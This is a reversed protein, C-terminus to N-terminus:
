LKKLVTSELRSSIVEDSDTLVGAIKLIESTKGVVAEWNLEDQGVKSNFNVTKIWEGADEKSYDLNEGIYEIAKDKNVNFYNIGKNVSSVFAKIAENKSELTKANATIVWSPWPTYIQGIQKIEGNDYYKKSTFYEWMFADSNLEKDELKHNVSDRLNKFTSLIPFNSFEKSFKLDHALVFSMIYSGSGIRSVGISKGDLQDVKTLENRNSGTSVAWLLPSNVYTDILKYSDNGKALDAIFGETLGIAIDVEGDNLLKVLRGTGELVKVFEIKLNQSEYYGQQEAFFLPTSFHEPIYAVKLTTIENSM